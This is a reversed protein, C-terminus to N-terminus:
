LVFGWFILDDVPDVLDELFDFVDETSDIIRGLVILEVGTIPEGTPGRLTPSDHPGEATAFVEGNLYVTADIVGNEGTADLRFSHDGHRVTLKVDGEGEVGEQAGRVDGVISFDRADVGIEFQVDLEGGTPLPRAAAEIDFDLKVGDGELFGRATLAWRGADENLTTRYDLVTEEDLVVTFRLAIDQQSADGQDILDAYGTEEAVIPRGSADVEYTIFRVGTSPAGTRSADIVYRDQTPSYVFTKGRHTTSIIPAAAPGGEIASASPAADPGQSLRAALSRPFAGDDVGAVLDIAASAGYPTRGGLAKFSAWESSAFAADVAEYDRLTERFADGSDPDTGSECASGIIALTLLALASRTLRSTM